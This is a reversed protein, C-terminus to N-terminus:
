RTARGKISFRNVYNAGLLTSLDRGASEVRRRRGAKTADFVVETQPQDLKKIPTPSIFLGSAFAKRGAARGPREGQPEAASAIV